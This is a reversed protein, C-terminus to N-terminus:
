QPLAALSRDRAGRFEEGANWNPMTAANAVEYGLWFSLQGMQVASSWDWSPDMEDSPQHYHKERYEDAKQKGWGEPKGIIDHGQDISFAPVGTKALSFHDSRYYFGQEPDQDPVITLGLAKTVRQATPYFSMKEVGLMTVDRVKGFEYISDMNINIAIRGSPITPTRGYWASGLLGQEEAAVAAFIISRKPKPSAQRWVHALDILLATGSANDIAGNYIRDNPDDEDPEGIGLHDHHATYLVAEDKLKPDSGPLRAVVNNTDFSRVKSAINGRLRYGGLSVPKFDRSAAAKTLEDLNLGAAAFLKDATPKSIWSALELANQGPLNKTYSRERGWGSRVVPWDYGAAEKTHVLIVAEAGKATGTEYKYTWRGYYTRARGRFLDPEAASAPPDVVLMVITKGRVDMGKYDDWKYEPAVVGHGVFVIESDLTNADKQTQDGGVWDELFKLPGITQGGDKVFSVSSQEPVPAVGMLSVKQYYTGNDGNPELGMISFQAAIYSTAIADGRTGPGRGELLDGSLFATHAKIADPNFDDLSRAVAAPIASQTTTAAKKQQAAIPVAVAILLVLSWRIRQM